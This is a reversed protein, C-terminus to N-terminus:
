EIPNMNKYSHTKDFEQKLKYLDSNKDAIDGRYNKYYNLINRFKENDTLEEIHNFDNKFIIPYLEQKEKDTLKNM